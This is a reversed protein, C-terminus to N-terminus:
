VVGSSSHVHHACPHACPHACRAHFRQQFGPLVLGLDPTCLGGCDDGDEAEDEGEESPDIDITGVGM